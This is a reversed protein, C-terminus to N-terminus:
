ENSKGGPGLKKAVGVLSVGFPFNMSRLLRAELTLLSTLITNIGSQYPLSFDSRNEVLPIPYCLAYFFHGEGRRFFYPLFTFLLSGVISPGYSLGFRRFVFLSTLATLPFNLLFYLNLVVAYNTSFLSLFKIFLFHIGDSLPFDYLDLGTPMGLFHNQWYWGNDILGKVIISYCLADGGPLYGFPVALSAKWLKM